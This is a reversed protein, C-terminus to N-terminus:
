LLHARRGSTVEHQKLKSLTKLLHVIVVLLFFFFQQTANQSAYNASLYLRAYM